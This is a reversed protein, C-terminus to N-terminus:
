SQIDLYHVRETLKYQKSRDNNNYNIVKYRIFFSQGKQYKRIQKVHQKILRQRTSFALKTRDVFLYERKSSHNRTRRYHDKSNLDQKLQYFIHTGRKNRGRKQRYRTRNLVDFSIKLGNNEIRWLNLM